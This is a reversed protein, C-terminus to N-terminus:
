EDDGMLGLQKARELANAFEEALRPLHDVSCIFGKGPRWGGDSGSFFTRLDAINYGDITRLRIAICRGHRNKWWRAILVENQLTVRKRPTRRQAAPATNHTPNDV